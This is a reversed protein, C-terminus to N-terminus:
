TSKSLPTSPRQGRVKAALAAAADTAVAIYSDRGAAFEPTPVGWNWESGWLEDSVVLLVGVDIGLAEGLSVLASTEM